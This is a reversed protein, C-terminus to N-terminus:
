TPPEPAAAVEALHAELDALGSPSGVEYFREQVLFGALKNDISLRHFASALDSKAEAPIYEPVTAATLASLGYDIFRMGDPKASLGKQYLTVVGDAYVVNSDDWRNDNQLVTMIAARGSRLYADAVEEFRIPLYSDGYLIFFWDDLLDRDFALRVAGGTGLLDPPEYSYKVDVGWPAGDGVYEEIAEGMHGVALVVDTVGVRNLLDLQFHAFPRGAVPLLAKPCKDTAPRM